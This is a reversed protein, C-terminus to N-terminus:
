DEDNEEGKQADYECLAEYLNYLNEDYSIEDDYDIVVEPMIGINTASGAIMKGNETTIYYYSNEMEIINCLHQM